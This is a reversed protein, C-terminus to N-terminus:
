WDRNPDYSQSRKKHRKKKEIVIKALVEQPVNNPRLPFDYLQQLAMVKEREIERKKFSKINIDTAQLEEVTKPIFLYWLERPIEDLMERVNKCKELAVKIKEEM